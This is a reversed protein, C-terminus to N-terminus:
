TPVLRQVLFKGQKTDTMVFSIVELKMGILLLGM